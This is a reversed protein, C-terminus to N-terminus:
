ASLREFAEGASGESALDLDFGCYRLSEGVWRGAREALAPPRRALEDAAPAPGFLGRLRDVRGGEADLLLMAEGHAARIEAVLIRLSSLDGVNRQVLVVGAPRLRTLLRGESPALRTGEVGVVLLEGGKM